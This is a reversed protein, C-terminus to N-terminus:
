NGAEPPASRWRASCGRPPRPSRTSPLRSRRRTARPRPGSGASRGCTSCRPRGCTPTPLTTPTRRGCPKSAGACPRLRRRHEGPGSPRSRWSIFAGAALLAAVILLARRTGTVVAGPQGILGGLLSIGMVSGAQRATSLVGGSTGHHGAPAHEMAATNVAPQAMAHYIGLLSLGAVLPWYGTGAAALALALAGAGGVAQCAILVLRASYRGIARGALPAAVTTIAAFPLLALGAAAASFERGEQFYVALVYLLGYVSFSLIGGSLVPSAFARRRLLDPPVLPYRARRAAVAMALGALGGVGLSVWLLPSSWARAGIETLAVALGGLTGIALFQGPLDFPRAQRLTTGRTALLIALALVGVPVNQLFVWRWGAVAVMTGGAVPGLLTGAGVVTGWWAFARARAVPEPHLASTLALGSSMLLAAGAGQLLRAAILIPLSPALGCALSATTFLMLGTGFATRAGLRDSLAGASILLAAITLNYANVAWQAGAASANLNRRLEPVALNVVTTDLMIAFIGILVAM